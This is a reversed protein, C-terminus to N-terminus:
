KTSQDTNPLEIIKAKEQQKEKKYFGDIEDILLEYRTDTCLESIKRRKAYRDKKPPTPTTTNGSSINSEKSSFTTDEKPIRLKPINEIKEILPNLADIIKQISKVEARAALEMTNAETKIAETKTNIASTLTNVSDEVKTFNKSENTVSTGDKKSNMQEYVKNIKKITEANDTLEFPTKMGGANSYKQYMEVLEQIDKKQKSLNIKGSEDAISKFKSEISSWQKDVDSVSADKFMKWFTNGIDRTLNIMNLDALGM